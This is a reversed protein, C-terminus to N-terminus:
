RQQLNLDQVDVLPSLSLLWEVSHILDSIPIVKQPPFRGEQIDSLVEETAVNGPNIVTFGIKRDFAIRLAQVAGRLGFKSATNAVEASARNDLGSLSGIYIARPNAAQLLNDSLIRTIEIPAITNVGIVFRTEADSSETFNYNQTFADTEWVGGMFLLADLTETGIADGVAQIGSPQSIDAKIWSNVKAQTRSVAFVKHGNNHFHQTVSAGIGRSAGVVVVTEKRSNM